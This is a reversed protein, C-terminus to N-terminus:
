RARQKLNLLIQRATEIDNEDVKDIPEALAKILTLEKEKPKEADLFAMRVKAVDEVTIIGDGNIDGKLPEARTFFCFTSNYILILCIVSILVKKIM